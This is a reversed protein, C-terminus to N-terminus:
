VDPHSALMQQLERQLRHQGAHLRLRRLLKERRVEYEREIQDVCARAGGQERDVMWTMCMLALFTIALVSVERGPEINVWLNGLAVPCVSLHIWLIERHSMTLRDITLRDAHARAEVLREFLRRLTV